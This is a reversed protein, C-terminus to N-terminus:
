RRQPRWWLYISLIVGIFSILMGVPADWPRYRFTYTHEGAPASANLWMGANMAVPTGDLEAKWGTWLYERVILTGTVESECTVDINGGIASARCPIMGSSTDIYAYENEPVRMVSVSDVKGIYNPDDPDLNDRTGEYYPQPIQRGKWGWPRGTRSIKLGADLVSPMWYTEGYPPRVWQATETKLLTQATKELEPPHPVVFLWQRSFDHAMKLSCFLPFILLLKTSVGLISINSVNIRVLPWEHGLLMDMGLAALGMVLPVALGAIVPASRVGFLLNPFSKLVWGISIGSSALYILTIAVVFFPFPRRKEQSKCGLGYIALLVPIWGIYNIYLYPYPKKLLEESLYFDSDRIVLNLPAYELPQLSSLTPDIDKALSPLFHLLPVIFVAALLLATVSALLYERYVAKVWGFDQFFFVLLAPLIGIIFGIQLYGQGSLMALALTVGLLISTRRRRNLALDLAPPIALSTAATSLLLTVLGFDMRGALHGGAVVLFASWLRAIRDVKLVKALWWQAIGAMALAGIITVKSGNIAGWVLTPLIVLPHLPAGHLEVFSPAGGNILGNWFVCAGCKKFEDWVFHSQTSLGFENGRPWLSEDFNLYGRGVWLAWLIILCIESIAIWPIRKLTGTQFRRSM